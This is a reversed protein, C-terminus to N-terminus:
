TSVNNSKNGLQIAEPGEYDENWCLETYPCHKCMLKKAVGTVTPILEVKNKTLTELFLDMETVNEQIEKARLTDDFHYHEMREVVFIRM